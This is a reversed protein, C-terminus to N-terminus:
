ASDDQVVWGLKWDGNEWDGREIMRSFRVSGDLIPCVYLPRDFLRMLNQLNFVLAQVGVDEIDNERASLHEILATAAFHLARDELAEVPVDQPFPLPEPVAQKTSM